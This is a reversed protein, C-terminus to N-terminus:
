AGGARARIAAAMAPDVPWHAELFALIALASEPSRAYGQVFQPLLRALEPHRLEARREPAFPDRSAPGAPWLEAALALARDVAYGQVFRAASLAEGRRLRGLGVYLNTLAEGLQWAAGPAGGGVPPAALPLEAGPRAWVVLAAAAAAGALEAATFVAFECFVGDAYLLKYGDTTNRFSYAIPGAEELWDLRDLYRAKAGDEVVAYFDLDSYADLRDREAGASGVGVLGLADPRRALARGIADLRALLAAPPVTAPTM